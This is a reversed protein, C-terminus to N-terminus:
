NVKIFPRQQVAIMLVPQASANFVQVTPCHCEFVLNLYEQILSIDFYVTNADFNLFQM